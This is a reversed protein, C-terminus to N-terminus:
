SIRTLDEAIAAIPKIGKQLEMTIHEIDNKLSILGDVLTTLNNYSGLKIRMQEITAKHIEGYREPDQASDQINTILFGLTEDASKVAAAAAAISRQAASNLATLVGDFDDLAMLRKGSSIMRIRDSYERISNTDHSEVLPLPYTPLTEEIVRKLLFTKATGAGRVVTVGGRNLFVLPVGIETYSTITSYPVLSVDRGDVTKLTEYSTNKSDASSTGDQTLLFYQEGSDLEYQILSYQDTEIIRLM